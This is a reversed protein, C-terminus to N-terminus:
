WHYDTFFSRRFYLAAGYNYRGGNPAIRENAPLLATFSVSYLATTWIIGPDVLLLQGGTGAVTAGFSRNAPSSTYNSELSAYLEGGVEGDLNSPWLLYHVGVDAYLPNGFHYDSATANAQYGIEAGGSWYLKQWSATLSDRTGWAGTGPEAGRPMAGNADDAGTPIDIGIVPAIRLTSGIGDQQFITYRTQFLTDGFGTATLRRGGVDASNSVIGNNQVIFALDPSAGYILVNRDYLSRFGGGADSVEPQIRLAINGASIPSAGPFTLQAQAPAACSAIAGFALLLGAALHRPM